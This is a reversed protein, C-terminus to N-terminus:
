RSRTGSFGMEKVKQAMLTCIRHRAAIGAPLQAPLRVAGDSILWLSRATVEVQLVHFWFALIVVSDYCSANV